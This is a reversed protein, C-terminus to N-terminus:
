NGYYYRMATRKLVDFLSCSPKVEVSNIGDKIWYVEIDNPEPAIEVQYLNGGYSVNVIGDVVMGTVIPQLM